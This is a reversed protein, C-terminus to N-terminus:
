RRKITYPYLCLPWRSMSKTLMKFGSSAYIFKRVGHRVSVEALNMAGVNVEWSLVPDLDVSPDNAINALHVVVEVGDMFDENFNRHRTLVPESNLHEWVM